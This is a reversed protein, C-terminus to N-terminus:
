PGVSFRGTLYGYFHSIVITYDRPQDDLYIPHTYGPANSSICDQYVINGNSDSVVITLNQLPDAMYVSLVNDFLYIRPRVPDISRTRNDGWEGEVPIDKEKEDALLTMPFLMLFLVLVRVFSKM